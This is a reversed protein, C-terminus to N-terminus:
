ETLAIGKVPASDCYGAKDASCPMLGLPGPANCLNGDGACDASTACCAGYTAFAKTPSILTWGGYFMGGAVITLLLVSKIRKM